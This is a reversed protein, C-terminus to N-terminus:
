HKESAMALYVITLVTFIFAQLSIILIHFIAWPVSLIWQLWWPLLSAILIFILESAYMNGFLRLGLSIPKSILSISELIFNVPIFFINKFPQLTIEKIFGKIGKIKISYYLILCFIGIAMSITINIDSSPVIRLNKIGFINIISPIFDIPLLDMLNMLFIWSFITLSLPAIIKSNGRYIEKVNKNIFDIIIELCIQFKGPILNSSKTGKKFMILFIIGLLISFIISDINIVWFSYNKKYEFNKILHFNFLDLKLHELHHHIYQQSNSIM